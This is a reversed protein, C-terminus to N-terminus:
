VDTSRLSASSARPAGPGLGPGWRPGWWMRRRLAEYKDELVRNEVSQPVDPVFWAAVLKICLAVHQPRPPPASHPPGAPTPAQHPNRPFFVEGGGWTQGVEFLILFALRIALLIWFQESFNYDQANRYDRYRPPPLVPPDPTLTESPVCLTTLATPRPPPGVQM